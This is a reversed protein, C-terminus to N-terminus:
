ELEYKKGYGREAPDTMPNVLLHREVDLAWPTSPYREVVLRAEAVAEQFRQMNVLSKCIIWGREPADASGPFRANGDLALLLSAPPDNEGLEHLRKMLAAESDDDRATPAARPERDALAARSEAPAPTASVAPALAPRGGHRVLLAATGFSGLALVLLALRQNWRAMSSM